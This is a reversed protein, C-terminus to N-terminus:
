LPELVGEPIPQTIGSLGTKMVALSRSPFGFIDFGPFARSIIEMADEDTPLDFIPVLVTENVVVFQSYDAVWELGEDTTFVGWPLSILELPNELQNIISHLHEFRNKSSEYYASASDDCQLCLIQNLIGLRVSGPTASKSAVNVLQVATTNDLFLNKITTETHSPNKQLLHNLDLLILENGNSEIDAWSLCVDTKEALACPFANQSLLNATFRSDTGHLVLFGSESELIFPGFNKVNLAYQANISYQSSVSDRVAEYLYLYEVPVDMLVFRAKVSDIQGQPVVLIIDVYDVLLAILAEYLEELEEIDVQWSITNDPWVLLIADQPEWPAPLRWEHNQKNM